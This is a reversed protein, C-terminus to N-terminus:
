IIVSPAQASLTYMYIYRSSSSRPPFSCGCSICSPRLSSPRVIHIHTYLSFIFSPSSLLLMNTLTAPHRKYFQSPRTPSSMDSAASSTAEVIIKSNNYMNQVFPYKQFQKGEMGLGFYYYSSSNLARSISNAQSRCDGVHIRQTHIYTGSINM